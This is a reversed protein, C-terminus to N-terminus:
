HALFAPTPPPRQYSAPMSDSSSLLLNPVQYHRVRCRLKTAAEPTTSKDPTPRINGLRRLGLPMGSRDSVAEGNRMTFGDQEKQRNDVENHRHVHYGIITWKGSEPAADPMCTRRSRCPAIADSADSAPHPQFLAKATGSEVKSRPTKSFGKWTAMRHHERGGRSKTLLLRNPM